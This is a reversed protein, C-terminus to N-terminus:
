QLAVDADGQAPFFREPQHQDQHGAPSSRGGSRESQRGTENRERANFRRRMAESGASLNACRPPWVRRFHKDMFELWRKVAVGDHWAPNTPDKLYTASLAGRSNDLGAPKYVSGVSNSISAVILVPKWGIEAAKRIAQAAFKPTAEIFFANAGLTKRTVVQTDVTPNFPDYPLEAVIMRKAAAEGLGDKLGQLYDRGSDDNQYLSRRQLRTALEFRSSTADRAASFRAAHQFAIPIVL